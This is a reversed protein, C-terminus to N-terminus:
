CRQLVPVVCNQDVEELRVPRHEDYSKRAALAMAVSLRGDIGNVPVPRDELAAVVFVRLENVFSETYRDMFFNLPLDQWVATGTSIVAQNPYCNNTSIAGKSGLIEVRQDYGFVAKRSNDITGIVGNKFRLMIVATDLDGAEGIEPDVMVGASTYIEEVENGILFRAMDFDHISMDLFIGGSTKIYAISPPAPDRSIIHLLHPTGIEGRIVSERVRAFNADFRRNFGVQLKVGAKEVAALAEDTRTLSHDIPKECFVHKGAQAAQIVLDAHTDTPSCILVADIRPDALVEENHETVDPIGCREALDEAAKRDIDAIMLPAAEPLRFALTEAHVKGIRGAGLIGINLKKRV